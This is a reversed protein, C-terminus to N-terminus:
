NKRKYIIREGKVIIALENGTIEYAFRFTKGNNAANSCGSLTGFVSTGNSYALFYCHGLLGKSESNEIAGISLSDKPSFRLYIFDTEVVPSYPSATPDKVWEWEGILPDKADLVVYKPAQASLCAPIFLLLLLHFIRNM